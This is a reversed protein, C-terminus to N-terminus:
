VISENIKEPSEFNEQEYAEDDIEDEIVKEPPVTKEEKIKSQNVSMDGKQGVVNVTQELQSANLEENITQLLDVGIEKPLTEDKAERSEVRKEDVGESNKRSM